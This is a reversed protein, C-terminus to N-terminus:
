QPESLASGPQKELIYHATGLISMIAVTILCIEADPCIMVGCGTRHRHACSASLQLAFMRSSYADKWHTFHVYMSRKEVGVAEVTESTQQEIGGEGWSVRMLTYVHLPKLGAKQEASM